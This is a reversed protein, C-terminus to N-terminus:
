RVAGTETETNTLMRRSTHIDIHRAQGTGSNVFKHPEGAPAIVIRGGTAEITEDGVTFTLEGEQVVFVEDYPHKHLDPGKGPATDSLFFSVDVNGYQYGEFKHVSGNNPLEDNSIAQAM